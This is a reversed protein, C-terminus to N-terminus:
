GRGAPDAGADGHEKWFQVVAERLADVRSPKVRFARAGAARAAAEDEDWDAQSLVLVPIARLTADDGLRALVAPASMDPLHFDLVVFAPRPADVFPPRRELFALADAGNEVTHVTFASKLISRVVRLFGANDDVVLVDVAAVTM